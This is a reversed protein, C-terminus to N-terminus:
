KIARLLQPMPLLKSHHCEHNKRGEAAMAGHRAPVVPRTLMFERTRYGLFIVSLWDASIGSLVWIEAHTRGNTTEARMFLNNPKQAISIAVTVPRDDRSHIFTFDIGSDGVVTIDANMELGTLKSFAGEGIAGIEDEKEPHDAYLRTADAFNNGKAHHRDYGIKRYTEKEQETLTVIAHRYLDVIFRLGGSTEFIENM